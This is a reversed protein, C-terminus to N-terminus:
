ATRTTVVLVEAVGGARNEWAVYRPGDVVVSDGTELDLEEAPGDLVLRPTGATVYAFMRRGALQLSAGTRGGPELKVLMATLQEDASAPILAEATARSWDSRVGERQSRRSVTSPEATTLFQALSMGLAETIKQLSALSPSTQGLEVQSLFSASFGTREGLERLSLRSRARASKLKDGISIVM